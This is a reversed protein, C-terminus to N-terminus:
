VKVKGFLGAVFTVIAGLILGLGFVLYALALISSLAVGEIYRRLM